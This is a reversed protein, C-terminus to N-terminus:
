RTSQVDNGLFTRRHPVLERLARPFISLLVIAIQKGFLINVGGVCNVNEREIWRKGRKPHSLSCSCIAPPTQVRRRLRRSSNRKPRRWSVWIRLRGALYAPDDGDERMERTNSAYIYRRPSSYKAPSIMMLSPVIPEFIYKMCSPM